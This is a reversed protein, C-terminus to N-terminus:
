SGCVRTYIHGGLGRGSAVNLMCHGLLGEVAGYCAASQAPDRWPDVDLIVLGFEPELISWKGVRVGLNNGPRYSRKLEQVTAIPLTSWDKQYPAKGQLWHCTFGREVYREIWRFNIM